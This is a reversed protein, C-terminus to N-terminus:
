DAFAAYTATWFDLAVPPLAPSTWMQNTLLVGVLDEAPDNAWVTGLGGDWGYSGPSLATGHRRLHVGLGLGWGQHREPDPGSDALQAPSLQNTTMAEVTPRSLLRQGRHEGGALLMQGFAALDDVTSVLGDGGGPFAPPTAWQGDPPDYVTREGTEPDAGFVAGLRHREADPVFFATDNMGLPGLVRETLVVDLPQGAARAILVGLIDASTHYLWRTGPQHALPVSGVGRIWEDPGPGHQPAPPGGGLGREFLAAMVPQPGPAAFDMGLGSRFTLLDRVTIPRSAPVTDDLPGDPHALVQRDALEPLLDDVPDDLRLVCQEVLTLAAVATIPKTTSSIRYITDRGVAGSPTGTPDGGDGTVGARLTGTAGAHVDGGRAVLWTLGLVDGREVHRTLVQDLRRLRDTDWARPKM